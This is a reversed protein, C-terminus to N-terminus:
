KCIMINKIKSFLSDTIKIGDSRMLKVDLDGNEISEILKDITKFKKSLYSAIKYNSKKISLITTFLLSEPDFVINKAMKETFEDYSVYDQSKTNVKNTDNKLIIDDIAKGSCSPEIKINNNPNTLNAVDTGM